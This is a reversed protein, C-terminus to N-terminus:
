FPAQGSPASALFADFMAKWAAAHVVATKTLVGDLDFLCARVHDPLGLVRNFQGSSWAYLRRSRVGSGLPPTSTTGVRALIPEMVVKSSVAVTGAVVFM